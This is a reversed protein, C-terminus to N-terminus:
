LDELRRVSRGCPLLLMPKVNISNSTTMAIMAMRAASRNGASPRALASPLRIWHVLLRLCSASTQAMYAVSLLSQNGVFPWFSGGL